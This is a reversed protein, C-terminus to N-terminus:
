GRNKLIIDKIVADDKELLAILGMRNKRTTIEKNYVLSIIKNLIAMLDENDYPTVLINNKVGLGLYDLAKQSFVENKVFRQNMFINDSIIRTKEDIVLFFSKDEGMHKHKFVDRELEGWTGNDGHKRDINQLATKKDCVNCPIKKPFDFNSFDINTKVKVCKHIIKGIIIRRQGEYVVPKGNVYVVTPLESTDYWKGMSEFLKKLKWKSHGHISVARDAIEQDTANKDFPDRPNETWLILDKIDIYEITQKPEAM